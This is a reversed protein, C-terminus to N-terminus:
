AVSSRSGRALLEFVQAFAVGFQGGDDGFEAVVLAFVVCRGDSGPGFARWGVPQKRTRDPKTAAHRDAQGLLDSARRLGSQAPDIPFWGAEDIM